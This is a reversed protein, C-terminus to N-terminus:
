PLYKCRNIKLQAKGTRGAAAGVATGRVVATRCTNTKAGACAYSAGVGHPVAVVLSNVM